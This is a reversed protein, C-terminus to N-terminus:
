CVPRHDAHRPGNVGGRSFPTSPRVMASPPIHKPRGTAPASDPRPMLSHQRAGRTFRRAVKGDEEVEV